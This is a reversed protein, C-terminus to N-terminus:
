LKRLNKSKLCSTKMKKGLSRVETAVDRNPATIISKLQPLFESAKVEARLDAQSVQSCVGIQGQDQGAGDRNGAELDTQWSNLKLTKETGEKPRQM